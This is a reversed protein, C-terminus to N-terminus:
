GVIYTQGTQLGEVSKAYALAVDAGPVPKYGRFYPAYSDMAEVLVTPSVSNVRLGRPLEIAAARVFGDIAGNVLAASAGSRIPDRNLIGSTFTFSAGDNAFERGILLLNVQGMLKDQLGLAFHQESMEGLPAFTVNGAACILADFTGTQEFLARISASDSIDVQFDGSTRGIRIIEHRQSLEKDVASGLTGNAGILLIKM